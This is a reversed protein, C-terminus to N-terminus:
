EFPPVSCGRGLMALRVASGQPLVPRTSHLPLRQGGRAGARPPLGVSQSPFPKRKESEALDTERQRSGLNARHGCPATRGPDALFRPKATAAHLAWDDSGCVLDHMCIACIAGKVSAM